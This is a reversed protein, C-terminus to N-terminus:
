VIKTIYRLIDPYISFFSFRILNQFKSGLSLSYLKSVSSCAPTTHQVSSSFTGRTNHQIRVSIFNLITVLVLEQGILLFGIYQVSSRKKILPMYCNVLVDVM